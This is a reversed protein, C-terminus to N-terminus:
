PVREGSAPARRVVVTGAALRAFVSHGNQVYRVGEPTVEEILVGGLRDGARVLHGSVIAVRTGERLIIAEVHVGGTEEAGADSATSPRTPDLLQAARVTGIAETAAILCALTVASSVAARRVRANM